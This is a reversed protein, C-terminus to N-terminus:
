EKRESSQTRSVPSTGPRNKVLRLTTGPQDSVDYDVEDMLSLIIFVGYGGEQPVDLDPPRYNALDFTAGFDRIVLVLRAEDVTLKLNIPHNPENHYAHKIVNACAESVVLALDNVERDTFGADAAKESVWDRARRVEPPSSQILLEAQV